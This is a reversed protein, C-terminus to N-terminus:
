PCHTLWTTHCKLVLVHQTVEKDSHVSSNYSHSMKIKLSVPYILATHFKLELANQIVGTDSHVTRKECQSFKVKKM